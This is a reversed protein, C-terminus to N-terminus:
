GGALAPVISIEDGERLRTEEGDCNRIDDGNVFVLLTRRIQGDPARLRERLAPFAADLSVLANRVSNGEVEIVDNGNTLLRLSAPIRIAIM